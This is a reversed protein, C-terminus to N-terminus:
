DSSVKNLMAMQQTVYTSLATLQGMKTDLATYQALLRQQTRAVRDELRQEQGERSKVRSQLSQQRNAFVGDTGLATDLWTTFQRGFGNNAPVDVDRHAFLKSLEAGDALAADLKTADTVIKGDRNLTLGIDGLRTHVSGTSSNATFMGRLQGLLQVAGRDGQLAGSIGSDADYRTQARLLEVSENFANVFADVAKKLADTDPEVKVEASSGPTRLTLTVGEIAGTLVNTTSEIPVGNITLAANSAAQPRTAGDAVPAVAADYALASLGSADAPNGDDDATVQVRFGNALGTETSRLVLRSGSVDTVLSAVVGAGAANIKDRVGALSSSGSDIVIDIAAAGAKPVPPVADFDGLEIRLTGGGVAAAADAYGRTVVTQQQALRDIVVAYRGAHATGTTAAAVATTDTTAKTTDWTSATGLKASADRLTALKGQVQGFASIQTQLRSVESQLALIPRREIAVLQSVIANVDLGSGIGASSITM